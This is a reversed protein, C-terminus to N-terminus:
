TYPASATTSETDVAVVPHAALAEVLQVLRDDTDVLMAPPLASPCMVENHDAPRDAAAGQSAIVIPRM